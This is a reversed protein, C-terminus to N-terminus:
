NERSAPGVGGLWRVLGDRFSYSDGFLFTRTVGHGGGGGVGGSVGLGDGGCGVGVSTVVVATLFGLVFGVLVAVRMCWLRALWARLDGLVLWEGRARRASKLGPLGDISHANNVTQYPLLTSTSAKKHAWAQMTPRPQFPTTTQSTTSHKQPVPSSSTNTSTTSPDPPSDVCASSSLPVGFGCSTQVRLVELVVVARAGEVDERGRVHGMRRLLRDFAPNPVRRHEEDDASREYGDDGSGRVGVVDAEVVSGRCFFRLIRPSPGFSCFMLTVRGNEYVHAITEAGSGTYDIYACQTGGSFITLTSSPLGKPSLNVHSNASHLPASATFFLPQSLAWEALSPTITPYLKM